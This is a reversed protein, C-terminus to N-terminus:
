HPTAQVGGIGGQLDASGGNGLLNVAPGGEGGGLERVSRGGGCQGQAEKCDIGPGM